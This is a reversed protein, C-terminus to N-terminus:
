LKSIVFTDTLEKTLIKNQQLLKSDASKFPILKKAKNRSLELIRNAERIRTLVMEPYAYDVINRMFKLKHKIQALKYEISNPFVSKKERKGEKRLKKNINKVKKKFKEENEAYIINLKNEIGKKKVIMPKQFYTYFIRKYLNEDRAKICFPSMINTGKINYKERLYIPLKKDKKNKTNKKINEKSKKQNDDPKFINLSKNKPLKCTNILNPSPIFNVENIIVNDKNSNTLLNYNNKNKKLKIIKKRKLKESIRDLKEKCLTRESFRTSTTKLRESLVYDKVNLTKYSSFLNSNNNVFFKVAQYYYNNKRSTKSPFFNCSFTSTSSSIRQPFINHNTLSYNKLTSFLDFITKNNRPTHNNLNSFKKVINLNLKPIENIKKM